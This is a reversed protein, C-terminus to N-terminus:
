LASRLATVFRDIDADTTHLHPSIRLSAGRVSVVVGAAALHDLVAAARHEPLSIGFMHPGVASRDPVALGVQAIRNRLQDCIGALEASVAPISWALLQQIAAIAMPVLGFNTRQGVDFRRAGRQYVDTYDVLGAFDEAGQRLIWNEEIPHGQQHREAVYLYGISFPGLLWKYGVSVVFDPDVIALDLPMAGLSQSADVVVAAGVARARSAVAALDLLAGDTWHVNPVAVVATQDCLTHLTADTWSQGAERVVPVVRADARDAARSWTYYNSPYEEALVAVEDGPALKLNRAAIALGYSTSPVLAVADPGAGILQGVAARLREVDTFWDDAAIAWPAARTRVGDIGADAVARLLPSMNATNLYSVHEPVDFLRRADATSVPRSAAPPIM